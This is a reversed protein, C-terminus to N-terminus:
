RAPAGLPVAALNDIGTQLAPGLIRDAMLGFLRMLPNHGADMRMSWTVSTEGTPTPTLEIRQESRGMAGMDVGFVVARDTIETITQTGTGDKGKFAFGSGVGRDAGFPTITLKPDATLHPNISTFGATSTVLDLIRGPEAAVTGTRSITTIRGM